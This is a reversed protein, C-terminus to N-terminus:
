IKCWVTQTQIKSICELPCNKRKWARYLKVTYCCVIKSHKMQLEDWVFFFFFFFFILLCINKKKKLDEFEHAVILSFNLDRYFSCYFLVATIFGYFCLEWFRDWRGQIRCSGGTHQSTSKLVTQLARRHFQQKKILQARSAVATHAPYISVAPNRHQSVWHTHTKSVKPCEQM